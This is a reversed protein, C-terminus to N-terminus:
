DRSTAEIRISTEGHRLNQAELEIPFSVGLWDTPWSGSAPCPHCRALSLQKDEVCPRREDADGGLELDGEVGEVVREARERFVPPLGAAVGRLEAGVGDGDGAVLVALYAWRVPGGGARAKAGPRRM